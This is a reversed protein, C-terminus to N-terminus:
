FFSNVFIKESILFKNINKKDSKLCIQCYSNMHLKWIILNSKAHEKYRISYNNTINQKLTTDEGMLIKKIMSTTQM